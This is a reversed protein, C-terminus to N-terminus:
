LLEIAINSLVNYRKSLKVAPTCSTHRDIIHVRELSM